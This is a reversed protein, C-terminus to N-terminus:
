KEAWSLIGWKSYQLRPLQQLNKLRQNSNNWKEVPVEHEFMQLQKLFAESDKKAQHYGDLWQENCEKMGM